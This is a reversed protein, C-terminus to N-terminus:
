YYAIPVILMLFYLYILIPWVKCLLFTLLVIVRKTTILENHLISERVSWTYKYFTECMFNSLVEDVERLVYWLVAKSWFSDVQLYDMEIQFLKFNFM